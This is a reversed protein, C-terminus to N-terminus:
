PPCGSPASRRWGSGPLWSCGPRSRRTRSWTPPAARPRVSGPPWCSSASSPPPRPPSSSSSTARPSRSWASCCRPRPVPGPRRTTPGAPRPWPRPWGCCCTAVWRSWPPRTCSRASRAPATCPARCGSRSRCSPRRASGPWWWAPRSSTAGAAPPTRCPLRTRARSGRGARCRRGRLSRPRRGPHDPVGDHGLRGDGPRALPLRHSRVVDGGDGGVVDAADAAHHGAGDDPRRGRLAADARPVAGHAADPTGTPRWCCWRRSWRSRRCCWRLWATWAWVWSPAPWSRRRWRPDRARPSRSRSRRWRWCRRRASASRRLRDPRRASGALLLLAGVVAPLVVLAVLTLDLM